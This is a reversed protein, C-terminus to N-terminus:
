RVPDKHIIVDAGPLAALLDRRVSAGIDHAASLSQRGDLELHVQVFLRSGARRTKLDHFGLVGRHRGIVREIAAIQESDARRDMLGNWADVGIRRAASLLLLCAAIAVVPDLWHLGFWTSAALAAMAGAAPLLDSLYHLRDAAVIRSGTRRAVRGQWSVLAMTVAISAAMVALGARGAALPPEAGLRLLARWVIIGASGAVLTAQGLAILDEISTHGFAHDEDPPKAAYLIGFLGTGSILMDLASDALSAAVSLSGTAALAWAKLCVLLVAAGVSAIGASINLRQVPDM